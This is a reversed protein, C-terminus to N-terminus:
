QGTAECRDSWPPLCICKGVGARNSGRAADLLTLGAWATMAPRAVVNVAVRYIAESPLDASPSPALGTVVGTVSFKEDHKSYILAFGLFGAAYVLPKQLAAAFAAFISGLLASIGYTRVRCGPPGDQEHWGIELAVLL